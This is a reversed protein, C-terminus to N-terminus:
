GLGHIIGKREDASGMRKWHLDVAEM